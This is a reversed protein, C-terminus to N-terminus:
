RQGRQLLLIEEYEAPYKSLLVSLYDSDVKPFLNMIETFNNSKALDDPTNKRVDTIDYSLGEELLYHVVDVANGNVAWFLAQLFNLQFCGSSRIYIFVMIVSIQYPRILM